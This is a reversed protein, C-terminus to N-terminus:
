NKEKKKKSASLAKEGKLYMIVLGLVVMVSSGYVLIPYLRNYIFDCIMAATNGGIILAAVYGFFSLGGILLALMIGYGYIIGAARAIKEFFAKM